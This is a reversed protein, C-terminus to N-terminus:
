FHLATSFIVDLEKLVISKLDKTVVLMLYGIRISKFFQLLDFLGVISLDLCFVLFKLFSQISLESIETLQIRRQVDGELCRMDLIVM